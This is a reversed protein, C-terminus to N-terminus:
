RGAGPQDGLHLTLHIALSAVDPDDQDVVALLGVTDDDLVDVVALGEVKHTALPAPLPLVIPAGHEGLVAVVSGAVPGDAVADPADEATASVCVQGDPLTVADTITLPWGGMTGLDYRRVEGLEIAAVSGEGRITAIIGELDVDVSASAVRSRGHGRQFWRLRDGVVCAGELNLQGDSLGLAAQVRAYLPALDTTHVAIGAGTDVVLVGDTRPLLSGSGLLLVAPRGAIQVPCAAELDPKLVKTGSAEDFLDLGARSVLLRLREVEGIEPRWWAAHTADDQAILWGDGWPTVASAARV